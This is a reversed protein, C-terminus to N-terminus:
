TSAMIPPWATACTPSSGSSAASRRRIATSSGSCACRAISPAPCLPVTRRRETQAPGAPAFDHPVAPLPTTEVPALEVDAEAAGDEDGWRRVTRRLGALAFAGPAVPTWVALARYALVAALTLDLPSGFAVLVAVLGGSASGPLPVTNALQGVFYGLVLVALPPPAGFAHFAAWLAAIDFGWWVPAGLLRPDPRRALRLADAVADGM